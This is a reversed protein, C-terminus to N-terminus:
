QQLPISHVKEKNNNVETTLRILASIKEKNWRPAKGSFATEVTLSDDEVKQPHRTIQIQLSWYILIFINLITYRCLGIFYSYKINQKFSYIFKDSLHAARTFQDINTGRCLSSTMAVLRLDSITFVNRCTQSVTAFTTPFHDYSLDSITRNVVKQAVPAQHLNNWFRTTRVLKSIQTKNVVIAIFDQNPICTLISM